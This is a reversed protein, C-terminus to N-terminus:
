DDQASRAEPASTIQAATRWEGRVAVRVPRLEADVELLDAPSGATLSGIPSGSRHRDPLVRAPSTTAATVVDALPLGGGAPSACRRVVDLLTRTGGAIAGPEGPASPEGSALRAVGDTVRVPLGGLVYDGDGLGAAGMADTVLAVQRPGVLEVVTRVLGDDLHVGDAILELMAAGRAAVALAAGVPGPSRHHLSPMANFLHTVLGPHDVTCDALAEATTQQDADTHGVAVVAGTDRVLEAAAGAGPLEPAITVHVIRGDALDLWGELEALDPARLQAPDHAGRRARSLYPGELHLGALLGDDVLPSLAEIARRTSADPGSVISAVLSTTGQSRHFAAARAAAEARPDEPSGAAAFDAGLAGHCHLDVLGPLLTHEDPLHQPRPWGDGLFASGPGSWTIVGQEVAVLADPVLAGDIVAAGRLLQRSM